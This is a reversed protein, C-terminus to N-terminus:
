QQNINYHNSDITVDIYKDCAGNGFNVIRATSGAPTVSMIGKTIYSCNGSLVLPTTITSAYTSGNSGTGTAAGSSAINYVADYWDTYFMGNQLEKNETTNWTMTQGNRNTIKGAVTSSFNYNFTSSNRGLCSITKTGQVLNDNVYYGNFTIVIGNTITSDFYNGPTSPITAIIQGRRYRTDSCLCDSPGFDVIITDSVGGFRYKISACASLDQPTQVDCYLPLRGSAAAEDTINSADNYVGEAWIVDQCDNTDPNPYDKNCTTFFVVTAISLLYIKYNM